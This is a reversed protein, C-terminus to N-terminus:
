SVREDVGTVPRSFRCGKDNLYKIRNTDEAGCLAVMTGWRPLVRSRSLLLCPVLILGFKASCVVHLHTLGKVCICFIGDIYISCFRVQFRNSAFTRFSLFGVSTMGALAWYFSLFSVFWLSGCGIRKTMQIGTHISTSAVYHPLSCVLFHLCVWGVVPVSWDCFVFFMWFTFMVFYLDPATLLRLQQRSAERSHWISQRFSPSSITKPTQYRIM